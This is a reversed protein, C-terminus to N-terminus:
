YSYLKLTPPIYDEFLGVVRTLILLAVAFTPFRRSVMDLLGLLLILSLCAKTSGIRGCLERASVM